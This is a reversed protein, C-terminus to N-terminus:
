LAITALYAAHTNYNWPQLNDSGDDAGSPNHEYFMWWMSSNSFLEFRTAGNSKAKAMM